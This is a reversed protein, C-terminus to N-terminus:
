YKKFDCLLIHYIIRIQRIVMLETYLFWLVAM